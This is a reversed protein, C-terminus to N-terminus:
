VAAANLERESQITGADDLNITLTAVPGPIPRTKLYRSVSAQTTGLLAAIRVQTVGDWTERFQENTM